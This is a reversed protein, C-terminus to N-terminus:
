SNSSRIGLAQRGDRTAVTLGVLQIVTVVPLTALWLPPEAALALVGLALGFSCTSGLAPGALAVLRARRPALQAHLLHIRGGGRILAAPVGKLALAHGLEHLGTALGVSIGTAISLAAVTGDVGILGSAAVLFTLSTALGVILGYAMAPPFVSRVIAGRGSTDISCRVQVREPLEPTSGALVRHGAAVLWRLARARSSSSRNVLARENLSRVLRELDQEVLDEPAATRASIQAAVAASDFESLAVLSAVAPANLPVAQQRVDDVLALADADLRVGEPITIASM